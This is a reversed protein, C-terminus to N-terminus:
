LFVGSEVSLVGFENLAARWVGGEWHGYFWLEIGIVTFHRFILRSRNVFFERQSVSM